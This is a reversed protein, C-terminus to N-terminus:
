PLRILEEQFSKKSLSTTIILINPFHNDQFPRYPIKFFFKSKKPNVVALAFPCSIASWFGDVSSSTWSRTPHM